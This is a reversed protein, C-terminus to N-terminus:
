YFWKWNINRGSMVSSSSSVISHQLRLTTVSFDMKKEIQILQPLGCNKKQKHLLTLHWLRQLIYMITACLYTQSHAKSYGTNICSAVWLVGGRRQERRRRLSSTPENRVKEGHVWGVYVYAREHVSTRRPGLNQLRGVEGEVGGYKFDWKGMPALPPSVSVTTHMPHPTIQDRWPSFFALMNKKEHFVQDSKVPSLWPSAQM